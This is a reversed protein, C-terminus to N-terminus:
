FTTIFSCLEPFSKSSEATLWRCVSIDLRLQLLLGNLQKKVKVFGGKTSSFFFFGVFEFPLADADVEPTCGLSEEVKM